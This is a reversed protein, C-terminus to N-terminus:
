NIKEMQFNIILKADLEVVVTSIILYNFLFYKQHKTIKFVQISHLLSPWLVSFIEMSQPQQGIQVDALFNMFWKGRRNAKKKLICIGVREPIIDMMQCQMKTVSSFM